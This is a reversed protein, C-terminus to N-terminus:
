KFFEKKLQDSNTIGKEKIVNFIDKVSMNNNASKIKKLLQANEQIFKKSAEPSKVIDDYNFKTSTDTGGLLSSATNKKGLEPKPATNTQKPQTQANSPGGAGATVLEKQPEEAVQFSSKQGQAIPTGGGTSQNAYKAAAKKEANAKVQQAKIDKWNERDALQEESVGAKNYNTVGWTNRGLEGADIGSLIQELAQYDINAEDIKKLTNASLKPKSDSKVVGSPRGDPYKKSLEMPTMKQKDEAYEQLQQGREKEEKSHRGMKKTMMGKHLGAFGQTDEIYHKCNEVLQEKTMDITSLFYEISNQGQMALSTGKRLFLLDVGRLFDPVTKGRSPGYKLPRANQSNYGFTGDENRPQKVRVKTNPNQERMKEAEEPTDALKFHEGKELPDGGGAADEFYTGIKNAASGLVAKTEKNVMAM